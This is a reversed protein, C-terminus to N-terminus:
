RRAQDLRKVAEVAYLRVEWDEDGTAARLAVGAAPSDTRLLAIVVSRRVVPSEDALRAALAPVAETAGLEGLADTAASRRWADACELEQLAPALMERAGVPALVQMAASRIHAGPDDRLIRVLREARAARWRAPALTSAGGGYFLWSGAVLVSMYCLLVVIVQFPREPRDRAFLLRCPLACLRAILRPVPLLFPAGRRYVEYAEGHQRVIRLEELMAVAVIVMTSLLWPLSGSIGWSRKPYRGFDLLLYVGYSWLIWGLYQPHRSFRYVWREAVGRQRARASLWAFTGLM